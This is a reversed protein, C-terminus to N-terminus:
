IGGYTDEYTLTIMINEVGYDSAFAFTNNGKTLQFWDSDKDIASIINTMIGNRLLYATKKGSITSIMIEDGVDLAAGTLNTIQDTYITMRDRTGMNYYYINRFNNGFFTISMNFGVQIDGNYFIDTRTDVTIEGFEILGEEVNTAGQPTFVPFEFLHKTGSFGVQNYSASHFWPDICIISITATEKNSFIDVDNSEVYGTVQLIRNETYFVLNVWDKIRFFNYTKLRSDEITGLTGDPKEERYMAITMVINRSPVRSGAFIGGDISAFPTSYIEAGVPTIGTINLINLGSKEPNTLRMTLLENKPNRAVVEYIM